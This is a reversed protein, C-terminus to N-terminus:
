LATMKKLSSSGCQVWGNRGGRRQMSCRYGLDCESRPNIEIKKHSGSVSMSMFM